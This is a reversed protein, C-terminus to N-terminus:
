QIVSFMGSQGHVPHGRAQQASSAMMLVGVVMHDLLVLRDAAVAALDGVAMEAAM